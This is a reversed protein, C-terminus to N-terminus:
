KIIKVNTSNIKIMDARIKNDLENSLGPVTTRERNAQHVIDFQQNSLNSREPNLCKNDYAKKKSLKTQGLLTTHQAQRRSPRLVYKNKGEMKNM